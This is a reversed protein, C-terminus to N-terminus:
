NLNLLRKVDEMKPQNLSYLINNYMSNLLINQIPNKNQQQNQNILNYSFLESLNPNLQNQDQQQILNVGKNIGTGENKKLGQAINTLNSMNSINSINNLFENQLSNQINGRKKNEFNIKKPYEEQEEEVIGFIARIVEEKEKFQQYIEYEKKTINIDKEPFSFTIKQGKKCIYKISEKNLFLRIQTCIKNFHVSDFQLKEESILSIFNELVHRQDEYEFNKYESLMKLAKCLKDVNLDMDQQIRKNSENRGKGNKGSKNVYKNIMKNVNKKFKMELNRVKRRLRKVLKAMNKLRLEKEEEKLKSFNVKSFASVRLKEEEGGDNSSNISLNEECIMQNEEPIESGEGGGNSKKEKTITFLNASNNISHNKEANGESLYSHQNQGEPVCNFEYVFEKVISEIKFKDRSDSTSHMSEEKRIEQELQSM